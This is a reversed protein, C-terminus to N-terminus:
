PHLRLPRGKLILCQAGGSAYDFERVLTLKDPLHLTKFFPRGRVYRVGFTWRYNGVNFRAKGNLVAPAIHHATWDQRPKTRDGAFFLGNWTAIVPGRGIRNLHATAWGVGHKWYLASNDGPQGDD